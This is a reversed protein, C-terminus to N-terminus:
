SIPGREYKFWVGMLDVPHRLRPNLEKLAGAEFPDNIGISKLFDLIDIFRVFKIYGNSKKM